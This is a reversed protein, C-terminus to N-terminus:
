REGGGLAHLITNNELNDQMAEATETYVSVNVRNEGVHTSVGYGEGCQQAIGDALEKCVDMAWQSRLLERVAKNNLELKLLKSSM